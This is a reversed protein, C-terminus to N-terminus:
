WLNCSIGVQFNYNTKPNNAGCYTYSNTPFDIGLQSYLGIYKNISYNVGISLAIEFKMNHYGYIKVEHHEFPAPSDENINFFCLNVGAGCYPKIRFKQYMYTLQCPVRYLQIYDTKNIAVKAYQFGTTLYFRENLTSGFMLMCGLYNAHKNENGITRNIQYNYCPIISVHLIKQKKEYIICEKNNCTLSHYKHVIKFLSHRDPINLTMINKQIEPCDTTFFSLVGKHINTKYVVDHKKEQKVYEEYPVEVRGLSDKEIYYREKFKESYVYLNIKGELLFELFVRKITISDTQITKSVYYKNDIIRYAKIQYPSYEVISDKTSKKFSCLECNKFNRKINILGVITDESLGIVYGPQFNKQANLEGTLINVCLILLILHKM